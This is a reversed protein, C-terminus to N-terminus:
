PLYCVSGIGEDVLHDAQEMASRLKPHAAILIDTVGSPVGAESVSREDEAM